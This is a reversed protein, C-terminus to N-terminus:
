SAAAGSLPRGEPLQRDEAFSRTRIQLQRLVALRDAVRAEFDAKHSNVTVAVREAVSPASTGIAVQHALCEKQADYGAAGARRGAGDNSRLWGRHKLIKSV